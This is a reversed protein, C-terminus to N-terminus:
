SQLRKRRWQECQDQLIKGMQKAASLDCFVSSELVCNEYLSTTNINGTNNCQISYSSNLFISFCYDQIEQSTLNCVFIPNPPPDNTIYKSTEIPQPIPEISCNSFLTISAPSSPLNPISYLENLFINENNPVIWENFFQSQSIISGSQSHYDNINGDFTGCLGRVRGLFSTPITVYVNLYWGFPWPVASIVVKFFNPYILTYETGEITLSFENLNQLEQNAYTRPTLSIPDLYIIFISSQYKVVVGFNCSVTGCPQQRTQVVFDNGQTSRVLYYDGVGYFDYGLGDFTRFHPDGWSTCTSGYSDISSSIPIGSITTSTNQIPYLLNM